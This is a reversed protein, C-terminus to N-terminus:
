AGLWATSGTPSFGGIFTPSGDSFAADDLYYNIAGAATTLKGFRAIAINATGLNATSFSNVTEVPTPSDGLYYAASGSGTTATDVTIGVEIRYWIGSLLPNIFTFITGGTTDVLQVKSTGTLNVAVAGTSANRMGAIQAAGNNKGALCLYFRIAASISNAGQFQLTVTDSTSITTSINYSQKGHIANDTSYTATGAGFLSVVDFADGSGAQSAAVTTTNSGGEATNNRYSM